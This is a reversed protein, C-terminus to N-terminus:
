VAGAFGDRRQHPGIERGGEMHRLLRFRREQLGKTARYAFFRRALNIGVRDIDADAILMREGGDWAGLRPLPDGNDVAFLCSLLAQDRQLLQRVIFAHREIQLRQEAALVIALAVLAERSYGRAPDSRCATSSGSRFNSNLKLQTISM